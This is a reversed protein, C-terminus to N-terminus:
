HNATINCLHGIIVIPQIVLAKIDPLCVLPIKDSSAVLHHFIGEAEGMFEQGFM